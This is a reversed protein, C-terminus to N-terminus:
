QRKDYLIGAMVDATIVTHLINTEPYRLNNHLNITIRLNGIIRLPNTHLFVYVIKHFISFLTSFHYPCMTRM